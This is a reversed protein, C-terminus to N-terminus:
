TLATKSKSRFSRIEEKLSPLRFLDGAAKEISFSLRDVATLYGFKKYIKEYRELAILYDLRDNSEM